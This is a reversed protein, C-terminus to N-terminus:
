RVELLSEDVFSAMEFHIRTKDFDQATMQDRIKRLRQLRVGEQM